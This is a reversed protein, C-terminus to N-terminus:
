RLRCCRPHIELSIHPLVVGLGPGSAALPVGLGLPALGGRTCCGQSGSGWCSTLPPGSPPMMGSPSTSENMREEGVMQHRSVM